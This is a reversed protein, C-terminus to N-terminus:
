YNEFLNTAYFSKLNKCGDAIASRLSHLSTMICLPKKGLDKLQDANKFMSQETFLLCKVMQM